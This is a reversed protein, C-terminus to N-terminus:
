PWLRARLRGLLGRPDDRGAARRRHDWMAEHLGWPYEPDVGPHRERWWALYSERDPFLLHRGDDRVVLRSGGRELMEARVPEDGHWPIRVGTSHDTAFVPGDPVRSGTHFNACYTYFPDAISGIGRIDCSALAAQVPDRTRMISSPNFRCEGCNDSGGNPM